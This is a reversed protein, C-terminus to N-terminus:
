TSLTSLYDTQHLYNDPFHHLERHVTPSHSDTAKTVTETTDATDSPNIAPPTPFASTATHQGDEWIFKLLYNWM